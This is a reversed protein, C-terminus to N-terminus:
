SAETIRASSLMSKSLAIAIAGLLYSLAIAVVVVYLGNQIETKVLDKGETTVLFLALGFVDLMCWRSILDIVSRLRQHGRIRMPILWGILVILLRLFPFIALTGVMVGLLVWHKQVQLLEVIEWVSYSRSVLLWQTIRLFSAHLAEVLAVASIVVLVPIIWGLLLKDFLLWVRKTKYQVAPQEEGLQRRALGIVIESTIM